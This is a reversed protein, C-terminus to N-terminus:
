KDTLLFHKGLRESERNYASIVVGVFLNIIFFAGFIIFFIFFASIFYNVKYGPVLDPGNSNMMKYMIVAWNVTQAMVVM